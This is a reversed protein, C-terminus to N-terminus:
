VRILARRGQAAVSITRGSHCRDSTLVMCVSAGWSSGLTAGRGERSSAWRNARARVSARRRRMRRMRVRATPSASARNMAAQTVINACSAEPLSGPSSVARRVAFGAATVAEEPDEEEAVPDRAVAALWAAPRTVLAAAAGDDASEAEVALRPVCASGVADSPDEVEPGADDALWDEDDSELAAELWADESSLVPDVWDAAAEGAGTVM